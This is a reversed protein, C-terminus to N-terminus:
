TDSTHIEFKDLVIGLSFPEWQKSEGSSFYDDEFRIHLRNVTLKLNKIVSRMNAKLSDGEEEPDNQSKSATGKDIDLCQRLPIHIISVRQSRRSRFSMISSTTSMQLTTLTTWNIITVTIM